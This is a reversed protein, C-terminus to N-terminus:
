NDVAVYVLAIGMVPALEDHIEIMPAHATTNYFANLSWKDGPKMSMDQECTTIASLGMPADIGVSVADASYEAICDCAVKGNKTVELHTGGDHLHGGIFAISGSFDATWPDQMSYQFTSDKVARQDSTNCGGVDLWVPKIKKWAEKDQNVMVYEFTLTLYTSQAMKGTNMLEIAMYM